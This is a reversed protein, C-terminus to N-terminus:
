EKRGPTRGPARAIPSKITVINRCAPYRSCGFFKQGKYAGKKATRLVMKSGCKGCKPTENINAFGEGPKRYKRYSSLIRRGDIDIICRCEPYKSCVYFKKGKDKGKRARRLVMESGCKYCRREKIFEPSTSCTRIFKAATVIGATLIMFGSAIASFQFLYFAAVLIIVAPILAIINNM